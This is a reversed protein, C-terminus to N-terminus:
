FSKMTKGEITLILQCSCDHALDRIWVFGLCLESFLNFPSDIKFSFYLSEHEFYSHPSQITALSFSQSLPQINIVSCETRILYLRISVDRPLTTTIYEVM